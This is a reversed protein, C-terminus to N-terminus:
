LFTLIIKRRAPALCKIITLYEAIDKTSTNVYKVLLVLRGVILCGICIVKNTEVMIKIYEWQNAFAGRSRCDSFHLPMQCSIRAPTPHCLTPPIRDFGGQEDDKHSSRCIHTPSQTAQFLFLPLCPLNQPLIRVSWGSFVLCARTAKKRIPSCGTHTLQTMRGTGNPPLSLSGVALAQAVQAAASTMAAKLSKSVNFIQSQIYIWTAM